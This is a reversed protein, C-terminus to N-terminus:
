VGGTRDQYVHEVTQEGALALFALDDRAEGHFVLVRVHQGPLEDQTGADLEVVARREGRGVHLERELSQGIRFQRLPQFGALRDGPMSVGSSRVTMKLVFFGVAM